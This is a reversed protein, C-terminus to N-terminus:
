VQRLEILCDNMKVDNKTLNSYKSIEIQIDRYTSKLEHIFTAATCLYYWINM